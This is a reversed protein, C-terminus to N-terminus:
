STEETDTLRFLSFVLRCSLSSIIQNTPSKRRFYKLSVGFSDKFTMSLQCYYPKFSPFPVSIGLFVLGSLSSPLSVYLTRIVYIYISFNDSTSKIRSFIPTISVLVSFPKIKVPRFM